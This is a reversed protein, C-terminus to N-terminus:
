IPGVIEIILILYSLIYPIAQLNFSSGRIGPVLWAQSIFPIIGGFEV